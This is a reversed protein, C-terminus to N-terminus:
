RTRPNSDRVRRSLRCLIGQLFITRCPIRADMRNTRSRSCSIDLTFRRPGNRPCTGSRLCFNELCRSSVAPAPVFLGKGPHLYQLRSHRDAAAIVSEAGYDELKFSSFFFRRNVVCRYSLAALIGGSWSPSQSKCNVKAASTGYFRAPSGNVPPLHFPFTDVKTASGRELGMFPM